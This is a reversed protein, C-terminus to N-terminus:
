ASEGSYAKLVEDRLQGWIAQHLEHYRPLLRVESADRPRGLDIAHDGIIRARPGASM